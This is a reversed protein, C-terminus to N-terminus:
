RLYEALSVRGQRAAIRYFIELQQQAAEYESAAKFQDVGVLSLRDLAIRDLEAETTARATEIMAQSLGLGAREETLAQDIRLLASRGQQLLSKQEAVDLGITPDSALAAYALAKLLDRITEGDARLGFTVTEEPGIPLQVFGTDSGEYALSDFPGGPVDFWADVANAVDLATPMGATASQLLQLFSAGNPLPATQSASGSFLYRGATEVNLANVVDVLTKGATDSLTKIASAHDLQDVLALSVSLEGTQDQIRGLVSQSTNAFITAETVGHRHQELLQIKRDLLSVAMTSGGLHRATDKALGTTAEQAALDISDRLRSQFQSSLMFSALDGIARM